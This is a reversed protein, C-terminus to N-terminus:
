VRPEDTMAGICGKGRGFDLGAPSRGAAAAETCGQVIVACCPGNGRLAGRGM